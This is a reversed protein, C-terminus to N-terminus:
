EKKWKGWKMEDWYKQIVPVKDAVGKKTCTELWNETSRKLLATFFTNIDEQSLKVINVGSKEFAQYTLQQTKLSDEISWQATDKSADIFAQQIDSPLKNWTDLNIALPMSVVNNDGLSLFVKGLEYWKLPIIAAEAMFITDIVGRSMSEYIDPTQVNVPIIGLDNFVDRQYGAIVNMKKGKVDNLSQAPYSTIIGTAGQVNWSLVKINNQQEEAELLAKTEPIEQTLAIINTYAQEGTVLQETNLIQHLPLNEPFQDFQLSIIDVAGKSVLDLHELTNGLSSGMFRQIKVRGNTKAEVLDLTRSAALAPPETPMGSYSFKLTIVEETKAKDAETEAKETKNGCAAISIFFAAISLTILVQVLNKSSKKLMKEEM